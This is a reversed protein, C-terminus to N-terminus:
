KDNNALSAVKRSRLELFANISVVSNTCYEDSEFRSQKEGEDYADSIINLIEVSHTMLAELQEDTFIKYDM